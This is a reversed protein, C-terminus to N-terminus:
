RREVTYHWTFGEFSSGDTYRLRTTLTVTVREGVNFPKDGVDWWHRPQLYLVKNDNEFRYDWKHQGTIDSYIYISSDTISLPDLAKALEVYLEADSPVNLGHQKPYLDAIFEPQARLPAVTIVLFIYFFTIRYIM